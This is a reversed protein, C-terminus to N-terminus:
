KKYKGVRANVYDTEANAEQLDQYTHSEDGTDVIYSTYTKANVYNTEANADQLDQYTHNEDGTDVIYSTYTDQKRTDTSRMAESKQKIRNYGISGAVLGFCGVFVGVFIMGITLTIYSSPVTNCPKLTETANVEGNEAYCTINTKCFEENIKVSATLTGHKIVKGDNYIM